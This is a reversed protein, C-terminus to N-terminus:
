SPTMWPMTTHFFYCFSALQLGYNLITKTFTIAIWGLERDEGNGCGHWEKNKLRSWKRDEDPIMQPGTQPYNPTRLDNASGYLVQTSSVSTGAALNVNNTTALRDADGM